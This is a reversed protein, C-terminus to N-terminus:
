YQKSAYAVANPNLASRRRRRIIIIIIALDGPPVSIATDDEENCPISPRSSPSVARRGVEWCPVREELVIVAVELVM